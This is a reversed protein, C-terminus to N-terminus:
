EDIPFMYWGSCIHILNGQHIAKHIANEVTASFFGGHKMTQEKTCWRCGRAFQEEDSKKWHGHLEYYVEKADRFSFMSEGFRERLHRIFIKSGGVKDTWHYM